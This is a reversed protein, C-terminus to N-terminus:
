HDLRNDDDSSDHNELTQSEIVINEDKDESEDSNCDSNLIDNNLYNDTNYINLLDDDNINEDNNILINNSSFYDIIMKSIDKTTILKIDSNKIAFYSLSRTINLKSAKYEKKSNYIGILEHISKEFHM